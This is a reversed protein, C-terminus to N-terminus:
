VLVVNGRKHGTEVYHHAEVLDTFPYTRDMLPSFAGKEIESLVAQLHERHVESRELGTASFRASKLGFLKSVLMDKLLRLSLVPCVYRGRKALAKKAQGFSSIGLTDFIVDYHVGDALANTQNYDIVRTAGLDAVLKANRRSATATINAGLAAAFQVAASGLSGAGGLILINENPKLEAVIHLFHWSTLAGDCLTAAEEHTVFDPKHVLTGKEPLCIHTSNAGFALGAEGFIEDGLKFHSVGEGCAVVEGSFCTGSLGARPRKLDLFLRAFKPVGARMMSDARSIASAYVRILVETPAPQPISLELPKLVAPGGYRTVTWAMRKTDM